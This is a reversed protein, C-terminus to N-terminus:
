ADCVSIQYKCNSKKMYRVKENGQCLLTETSTILWITSLHRYRDLNEMYANEIKNRALLLFQSNVITQILFVAAAAALHLLVKCDLVSYAEEELILHLMHTQTLTRTDTCEQLIHRNAHTHTNCQAHM